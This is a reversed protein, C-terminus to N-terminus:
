VPEVHHAVNDGDERRLRIFVFASVVTLVGLALFAKHIGSLMTASAATTRPIFLVTALSSTAIGFSMSMQQMTSAITSAMSASSEEVDAYALTNMSTFQLSSFFGFAAAEVVIIWIPTNRGITAFVAFMSGMAM